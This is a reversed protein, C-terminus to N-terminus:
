GPEALKKEMEALIRRAQDLVPDGPFTRIMWLLQDRAAGWDRLERYVDVLNMRAPRQRAADDGALEIARELHQRAEEHRGRTALLLGLKVVADYSNPDIEIADLLAEEAEDYEKRLIHLRGIELWPATGLIGKSLAARMAEIARGDLERAETARGAARLREAQRARAHGLQFYVHPLSPRLEILREVAALIEDDDRGREILLTALRFAADYNGPDDALISQLTRIAAQKDGGAALDSAENLRAVIHLHDRPHRLSGREKAAPPPQSAAVYGLEQLRRVDEESSVLGPQFSGATAEGEARIRALADQMEAVVDPHASAVNRSEDPDNQLDYLEAAPGEIYKWRDSRIHVLPSWGYSDWPVMTEGYSVLSSDAADDPTADDPTAAPALLRPLLSTGQVQDAAAAEIGLLDLLTPLVDIQRAVRRDVGGAPLGGPACIFFPIRMTDEFVLLGHTSEEHPGAFGEGHDGIVVIATKRRLRRQELGDLLEGIALDMTAIEADYRGSKSDDFAAAVGDPAAYPSHPDFYHAWLFYPRDRQFRDAAELAARTVADARRSPDNIATERRMATPDDDFHDFGQALGFRRALVVAAVVAATQYGNAALTETLTTTEEPLTYFGNTRVGHSTPYLGTFISAHSPLTLPTQAMAADFRTGAAALGDMVPTRASVHGYCGLRDARTTDLTILLVNWGALDGTPPPSCGPILTILAILILAGARADPKQPVYKPHDRPTM